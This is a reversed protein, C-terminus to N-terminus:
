VVAGDDRDDPREDPMRAVLTVFGGVFAGLAALLLWSPLDRWALAAILLFLPGGIVAAWALRSVADGRPLPAPEPPIYGEDDEDAPEGPGAGADLAGLRPVPDASRDRHAGEPAAPLDTGADTGSDDLDEAAPWPGVPPGGASLQAVIAAFAADVDLASWDHDGRPQGDAPPEHDHDGSM